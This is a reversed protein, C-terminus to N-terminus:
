DEQTGVIYNVVVRSPVPGAASWHVRMQRTNLVEAAFLISEIADQHPALTVLVPAGVQLEPFGGVPEVVLSGSRRGKPLDLEVTKVEASGATLAAVDGALDDVQEQLEDLAEDVAEDVVTTLTSADVNIFVSGSLASNVHGRRIGGAM